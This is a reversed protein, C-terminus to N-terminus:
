KTSVGFQQKLVYGNWYNLDETSPIHRIFVSKIELDTDFGNEDFSEEFAKKFEKPIALTGHLHPKILAKQNKDYHEIAVFDKIQKDPYRRYNNNLSRNLQHKVQNWLSIVLRERADMDYWIGDSHIKSELPSLTVAYFEKNRHDSNSIFSRTAAEGSEYLKRTDGKFSLRRNEELIAQISM